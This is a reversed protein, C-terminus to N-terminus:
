GMFSLTIGHRASGTPSPTQITISSATITSRYLPKYLHDGPSIMSHNVVYCIICGTTTTTPVGTGLSQTATGMTNPAETTVSDLGLTLLLTNDGATFGGAISECKVFTDLGVVFDIGSGVNGPFQVLDAGSSPTSSNITNSSGDSMRKASRLVQNHTNWVMRDTNSDTFQNSGNTVVTGVYRRTFDGDKVWIGDFRVVDVIRVGPNTANNWPVLELTTGGSDYVFVDYPTSAAIPNSDADLDTGITFDIYPDFDHYKWGNNYLAILTGKHPAYSVRIKATQNTLPLPDRSSEITLRGDAILPIIVGPQSWNSKDATVIITGDPGVANEDNDLPRIQKTRM